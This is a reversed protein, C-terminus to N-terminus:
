ANKSPRVDTGIKDPAANITGVIAQGGRHVTVHEVVVKQQGYKGKLKQMADLQDLFLRMLRTVRVLSLDRGEATQDEATANALFKAGAQHVGIMQVALLMELGGRPAIESLTGLATGLNEGPKEPDSLCQLNAAQSILQFAVKGDELGFLSASKKEIDKILNAPAPKKELETTPQAAKQLSEQKM